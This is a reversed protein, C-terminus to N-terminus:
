VLPESQFEFPVWYAFSVNVIIIISAAFAFAVFPMISAAIFITVLIISNIAVVIMM